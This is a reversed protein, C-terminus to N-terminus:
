ESAPPVKKRTARRKEKEAAEKAWKEQRL